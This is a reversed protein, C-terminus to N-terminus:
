FVAGASRCPPAPKRALFAYNTTLGLHHQPYLDQALWPWARRLELGHQSLRRKMERPTVATPTFRERALLWKCASFLLGCIGYSLRAEDRYRLGDLVYMVFYGLGNATICLTGGPRLVRSMEALAEEQRVFMFVGACLILDVSEDAVPVQEATGAVLTAPLRGRGHEHIKRRAFDRIEDWPEVGVVLRAADAFAILWQGNGSGIELVTCRSWDLGLSRLRDRWYDIGYAYIRERATVWDTPRADCAPRPWLHAVTMALLRALRGPLASLQARAFSRARQDLQAPLLRRERINIYVAKRLFTAAPERPFSCEGHSPDWDVWYRFANKPHLVLHVVDGPRAARLRQLPLWPVYNWGYSAPIGLFDTIQVDCHPRWYKAGPALYVSRRGDHYELGVSAPEEDRLLEWNSRGLADVAPHGHFCCGRVRVGSEQSLRRVDERLREIPDGGAMLSDYLHDTHLGVEHGVRAVAGPVGSGVVRYYREPHMLFYHTAAINRSRLEDVLHPVLHLGNDVDVRVVVNVREPEGRGHADVYLGAVTWSRYRHARAVEDFVRRYAPTLRHVVSM